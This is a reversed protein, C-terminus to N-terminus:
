PASEIWEALDGIRILAGELVEGFAGARWHPRLADRLGPQADDMQECPRTEGYIRITAGGLRLLKGRSDELDIGRLMVNARRAQPSVEVGLDHQAASWAAEDILTIQRKGGQNANGRIGRGQILEAHRCADMPGGKARKIWIAVIEGMRM